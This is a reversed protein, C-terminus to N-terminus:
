ENEGGRVVGVCLIRFRILLTKQWIELGSIWSPCFSENAREPKAVFPSSILKRLREKVNRPLPIRAADNMPAFALIRIGSFPVIARLKGKDGERLPDNLM